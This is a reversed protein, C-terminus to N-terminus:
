LRARRGAGEAGFRWWRPGETTLLLAISPPQKRDSGSGPDILHDVCAGAAETVTLLRGGTAAVLAEPTWMMGPGSGGGTSTAARRLEDMSKAVFETDVFQPCFARVAVPAAANENLFQLSRCFMVVGAKAAAYAPAFPM